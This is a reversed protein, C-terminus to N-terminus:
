FAGGGGGGGFGGGGGGSFGGGGGSGSSFSSGASSATSVSHAWTTSQVLSESAGQAYNRPMGYWWYMPHSYYVGRESFYEPHVIQLQRLVEDSVGLVVAMVLLRNWLVVDNPVAEELNTFECLWRRLAEMKAKIEQAEPSLDKMKKTQALIVSATVAIALAVLIALVEMVVLARQNGTFGMAFFVMSRFAVIVDIVLTAIALLTIPITSVHHPDTFFGRKEASSEVEQCWVEYAKAYAEKEKKAVEKMDSFYLTRRGQEDTAHASKTAIKSFAFKVTARDIRRIQKLVDPDDGLSVDEKASSDKKLMSLDLLTLRWDQEHTDGFFGKKTLTVPELGVKREDTLYMLAATFDSEKAKGDHWLAGLVAPHDFSPVDRFYPENFSVTHFANYRKRKHILSVVTAACLVVPAAFNLALAIRAQTRQANAEDAWASEEAIVEELHNGTKTNQSSAQTLWSAPFCVRMEVNEDTGIGPNTFVLDNGSAAVVGDLPGHGWARVNKGLNLHEDSALPLHLTCTVNQSEVDWGDSVYKWYLEGVDQWRTALLPLSYSVFFTAQENSHAAYLKARVSSGEDTLSYTHEEGSDSQTLTFDLRQDHEGGTIVEGMKIDKPAIFRGEFESQPLKWYVGHFSGDFDFTREEYVTLTGDAALSADISVKSVEYERAVAVQPLMLGIALSAVLVVLISYIPANGRKCRLVHDSGLSM